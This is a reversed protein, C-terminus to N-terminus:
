IELAAEADFGYERRLAEFTSWGVARKLARVVHGPAADQLSRNASEATAMAGRFATQAKTAQRPLSNAYADLLLSLSDAGIYAHVMDRAKAAYLKEVFLYQGSKSAPRALHDYSVETPCLGAERLGKFVALADDLAGRRSFTEMVLNFAGVGPRQDGTQMDQLIEWALEGDPCFELTRRMREEAPDPSAAHTKSREIDEPKVFLQELMREEEETMRRQPTESAEDLERDAREQGRSIAARLQDLRNQLGSDDEAKCSAPKLRRGKATRKAAYCGLMLGVVGTFDCSVPSDQIRQTSGGHRNERTARVNSALGIRAATLSSIPPSASLM